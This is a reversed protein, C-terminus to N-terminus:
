SSASCKLPMRFACTTYDYYGAHGVEVQHIGFSPFIIELRHTGRLVVNACSSIAAPCSGSKSQRCPGNEIACYERTRVERSTRGCRLGFKVTLYSRVQPTKKSDNSSNRVNEHGTMVTVSAQVPLAWMTVRMVDMPANTFIILVLRTSGRRRRESHASVPGCHAFIRRSM